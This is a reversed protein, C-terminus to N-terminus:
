TRQTVIVLKDGDINITKIRKWFTAQQENKELSQRFSDNLSRNFPPTFGAFFEAPLVRGNAEVSRPDFVFQGLAFSFGLRATGNFWRGKLKPLPVSNLPASLELTMVSDAIAVRVRNKMGVFGPDRAILTNVDTGTFEVRIEENNAIAQRLRNLQQEAARLDADTPQEIRIDTPESATFLAIAKGYLFWAGIGGLGLLVIGAIVIILCGKAFCGAGKQRPLPPPGEMM